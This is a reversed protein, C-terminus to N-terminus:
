GQDLPEQWSALQRPDLPIPKLRLLFERLLDTADLRTGAVGAPRRRGFM